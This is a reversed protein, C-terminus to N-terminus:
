VFLRETSFHWFVGCNPPQFAFINENICWAQFNQVSPVLVNRNGRASNMDAIGAFVASLGAKRGRQGVWAEPARSNWGQLEWLEQLILTGEGELNKAAWSLGSRPSLSAVCGCRCGLLLFMHHISCPFSLDATNVGTPWPCRWARKFQDPLCSWLCPKVADM